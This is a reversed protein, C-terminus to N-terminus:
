LVMGVITASLLSAITGGILAKVGLKSLTKRQNPAIAGIGGLQIGISGVNAFGCLIYTSIIVSKESTFQGLDIYEKMSKYALLENLIMKEGLLQGVLAVDETCVGLLWTIPSLAYGLVFQLSLENYQGDTFNAIVNNLSSWDGIKMFVYNILAVFAIFVLLMAAVNVALKVGERTGNSIAELVNSGIEDKKVKISEDIKETQPVLIKAAVVAGPAAMVSATILHKAFLMQQVPDDGGLFGIYIALVGGAITAMGGVMVLMIESKTMKPLYAKILLPSETQGLFINGAASLSEAGSLKMAKKLIFAFGYVVKQIVGFYYLVSSLASFFVITPLIWFAFNILPSEVEDSIFSKFLFRSGEKTFDLVKIFMKGVFEFSDQVFPVKLVIIAIIIQFGLGILVSKWDIARRNSSFLFALLLVSILGIIGRIISMAFSEEEARTELKQPVAEPEKNVFVYKVGRDDIILSDKTCKEIDFSRKYREYEISGEKIGTVKQGKFWFEILPIDNLVKYSVSDVNKELKETNFFLNLKNNKIFYYGSSNPNNKTFNFTFLNSDKQFILVDDEDMERTVGSNGSIVSVCRWKTKITEQIQNENSFLSNAFVVICFLPLFINKM